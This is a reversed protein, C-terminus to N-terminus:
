EAGPLRIRNQPKRGVERLFVADFKDTYFKRFMDRQSFVANKKEMPNDIYQQFTMEM